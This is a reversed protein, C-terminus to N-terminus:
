TKSGIKLFLDIAAGSMRITNYHQLCAASANKCDYNLKTIQEKLERQKSYNTQSPTMVKLIYKHLKKKIRVASVKKPLRWQEVIVVDDDFKIVFEKGLIRQLRRKQNQHIKSALMQSILKM